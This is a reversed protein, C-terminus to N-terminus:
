KYRSQHHSNRDYVDDMDDEDERLEMHKEKQLNVNVIIAPATPQSIWVDGSRYVYHNRWNDWYMNYHPFYVWRRHYEYNSHWYPHYVVVNNPRYASHKVVVVEKSRHRNGHEHHGGRQGFLLSASIMFSFLILFKITRM